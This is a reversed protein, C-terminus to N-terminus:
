RWTMESRSQGGAAGDSSPTAVMTDATAGHSPSESYLAELIRASRAAVIPRLHAFAGADRAARLLPCRDLWHLDFFGHRIAHELATVCAEVDGLGGAAEAVLQGVMSARRESAQEPDAALALLADRQGVWDGGYAAAIRGLFEMPLGSEASASSGEVTGPTVGPRPAEGSLIARAFAHDGRWSAFRAAWATSSLRSHGILERAIHDFREWDGELAYARAIEWHVLELGPDLALATEVRAIGEELHAAELLIRGLWEHAEATHPARAIARRLHQAATAADGRHLAVQGAAILTEAREPCRALAERTAEEAARLSLQDARDYFVKRAMAMARASVVRGDEPALEIARDFLAVAETVPKSGMRRAKMRARLYL